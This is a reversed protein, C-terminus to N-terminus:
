ISTSNAKLKERLANLDQEIQDQTELDQLRQELDDVQNIEAIAASMVEIDEVKQVMREYADLTSTDIIADVFPVVAPREPVPRKPKYEKEIKLRTHKQRITELQGELQQLNRKLSEINARQEVIQLRLNEATKQYTQRRVLARRALEEEGRSLAFGAREEWRHAEKEDTEVSQEMRKLDVLASAIYQKVSRISGRMEELMLGSVKVPDEANKLADNINARVLLKVRDITGM